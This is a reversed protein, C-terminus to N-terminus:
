DLIRVVGSKLDYVAGVVNLDGSKVRPSLIPENTRLKRVSSQVNAVVAKPLLTEAQEAGTEITPAIATAIMGIAKPLKVGDRLVHIAAKVAGCGEHGLVVVLPVKLEEVAYELSGLVGFCQPDVINGAVRVVFLDGLGASFVIEPAVRSDSCALIVAYPRQREATELRRAPTRRTDGIGFHEETYCKNGAIFRALAEEATAPDTPLLGHHDSERSKPQAWWAFAGAGSAALGSGILLNRRSFGPTGKEM